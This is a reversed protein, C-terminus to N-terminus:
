RERLLAGRAARAISRYSAYRSTAIDGREVAAAVACDPEGLHTCDRFRCRQAPERLERFAHALDAPAIAGLGFAGIGPSDILFGQGLRYLRATTTTQRGVGFRSVDGVVADGGLARFITSKGVGSGGALLSRRGDLARRLAEVNEGSKPNVVITEYDLNAYLAHLGAAADPPALDPKTFAVLAGVRQLECFGLLQDLTALRPPPHALSTVIAITDVNAAMTKERGRPTRRALALDRPEIREIVAEGDALPRVSVADGPVPM